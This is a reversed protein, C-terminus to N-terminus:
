FLELQDGGALGRIRELLKVMAWTDRECYALLARRLKAREEGKLTEEFLLRMLQLSATEGDNIPLDAYSMGPVLAPLVRKLSFSGGFDPHYIHNRVVPLLDLLKAEIAQLEAALRPV